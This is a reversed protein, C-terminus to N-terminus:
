DSATEVHSVPVLILDPALQKKAIRLGKAIHVRYSQPLEQWSKSEQNWEGLQSGDRTQYVFSVRGIRLFDVDREKGQLLLEGTYAEITRGYDAEIQYAELVRRFKESVSVDARKLMLHLDAVRKSREDMLFPVDLRVFSDITDIMRAMLPSVQREIVSVQKISNALQTLEEMQSDLQSQMQQNYVKLGDIEKNVVKFQQLKTQITESMTDILQQSKSASLNIEKSADVVKKLQQDQSLASQTAFSLTIGLGIIASSKMLPSLKM